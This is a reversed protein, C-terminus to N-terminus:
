KPFKNKMILGENLINKSSEVFADTKVIPPNLFSIDWSYNKHDVFRNLAGIQGLISQIRLDSPKNQRIAVFPKEYILSFAVGHFSTTIVFNANKIWGLFEEPSAIFITQYKYTRNEVNSAIEIIDANLESAIKGAMEYVAPNM